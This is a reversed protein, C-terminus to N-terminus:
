TLTNSRRGAKCDACRQNHTGPTPTGDLDKIWKWDHTGRAKCLARGEPAADETTETPATTTKPM